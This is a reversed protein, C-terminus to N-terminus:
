SDSIQFCDSCENLVLAISPQIKTLRVSRGMVRLADVAKVLLLAEDVILLQVQELSIIVSQIETLYIREQLSSLEDKFNTMEYPQMLEYVLERKESRM